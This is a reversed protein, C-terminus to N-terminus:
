TDRRLRCLIWGFLGSIGGIVAGILLSLIIFRRTFQLCDFSDVLMPFHTIDKFIFLGWIDILFIFLSFILATFISSTKRCFAVLRFIRDAFIGSIFLILLMIIFQMVTYVM